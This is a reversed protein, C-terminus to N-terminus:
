CGASSGKERVRVAFRQGDADAVEPRRGQVCDLMESPRGQGHRWVVVLRQHWRQCIQNVGGM